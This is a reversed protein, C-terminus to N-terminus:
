LNKHENILKSHAMQLEEIDYHGDIKHLQRVLKIKEEENYVINKDTDKDKDSLEKEDKELKIAVFERTNKDM